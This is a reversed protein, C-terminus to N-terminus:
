LTPERERRSIEAQYEREQVPWTSKIFALVARIEKDSM